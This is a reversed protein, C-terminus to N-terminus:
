QSNESEIRGQGWSSHITLISYDDASEASVNFSQPM